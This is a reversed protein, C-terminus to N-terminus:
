ICIYDAPIINDKDSRRNLIPKNIYQTSYKIKKLLAKSISINSYM